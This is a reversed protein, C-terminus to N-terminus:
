RTQRAFSSSSRGERASERAKERGYQTAERKQLFNTSSLPKTPRATATPQLATWSPPQTRFLFFLADIHLELAPLSPCEHLHHDLDPALASRPNCGFVIRTALSQHARIHHLRHSETVMYVPNHRTNEPWPFRGTSLRNATEACDAAVGGPLHSAHKLAAFHM